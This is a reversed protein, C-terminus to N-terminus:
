NEYKHHSSVEEFSPRQNPDQHWCRTILNQVCDPFDKPIEMRVGNQVLKFLTNQDRIGPFLPSSLNTIQWLIIAFAYVDSKKTSKRTRTVEPAMYYPTGKVGDLSETENM